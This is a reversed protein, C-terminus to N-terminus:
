FSTGGGGHSQGGSSMHTSSGGGDSDNNKPIIRTTMFTDVLLDQQDELTLDGKERYPYTYTGSKLQYRRLISFYFIGAAIGGILFAVFIKLPSLSHVRLIKGTQEDYSKGNPIGKQYYSDVGELFLEVGKAPNNERLPTQLRTLLTNIRKDTLYAVMKGATSIQIQRNKMDILLLAGSKNKGVGYGNQDYYDDAYETYSKGNTSNTTVIVLDMNVSKKVAQVSTELSQKQESTFLNAQDIIRTDAAQVSAPLFFFFVGFFLAIFTKKM